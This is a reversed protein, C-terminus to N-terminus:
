VITTTTTTHIFLAGFFIGRSAISMRMRGRVHVISLNYVCAVAFVGVTVQSSWFGVGKAGRGRMYVKSFIFILEAYESVPLFSKVM